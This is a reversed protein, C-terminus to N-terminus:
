VVDHVGEKGPEALTRRTIWPLVVLWFGELGFLVLAAILPWRYRNVRRHGPMGDSSTGTLYALERAIVKLDDGGLTSRVYVGDGAVAIASLNEEDLRSWHPSVDKPAHKGRRMWQPLTVEAGDPDGIGLVMVHSSAALKGAVSIAEGTVEEGDSILLVIREDRSAENERRSEGAFLRVAEQFASEIDTGEESLTDTDVAHLITKFYGHDTTLPCQLAAGGSFAVLGFRDAPYRLLLDTIKRQARDLRSPAPNAANMSESTDLLVLIERSSRGPASGDTGWQPGALTLLLFFVGVLVLVNLPRRLAPVQGYVLRGLTEPAAFRHLRTRRQGELRRLSWWLGVMVAIGALIFQWPDMGFLAFTM